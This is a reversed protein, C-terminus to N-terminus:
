RRNRERLPPKRPPTPLPGAAARGRRSPYSGGAAPQSPAQATFRIKNPREVTLCERKVEVQFPSAYAAKPRRKLFASAFCRSHRAALGSPTVIGVRGGVSIPQQRNRYHHNPWTQFM